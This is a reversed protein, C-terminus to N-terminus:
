KKIVEEEIDLQIFPTIRVNYHCKPCGTYYGLQKKGKYVWIYEGCIKSDCRLKM